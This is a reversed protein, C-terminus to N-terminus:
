QLLFCGNAFTVGPRQGLHNPQKRPQQRLILGDKLPFLDTVTLWVRNQPSLMQESPSVLFLQGKSQQGDTLGVLHGESLHVAPQQICVSQQLADAGPEATAFLCNHINIIRATLVVNNTYYYLVSM